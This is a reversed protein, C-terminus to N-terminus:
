AGPQVNVGVSVHLEVLPNPAATAAAWGRRNGHHDDTLRRRVRALRGRPAIDVQGLLLVRQDLRDGTGALRVDHHQHVPPRERDRLEAFAGASSSAHYGPVVPPVATASARNPVTSGLPFSGIDNGRSTPCIGIEYLSSGVPRGNSGFLLYVDFYRSTSLVGCYGNPYPSDYVVNESEFRDAGGLTDRFPVICTVASTVFVPDTAPVSTASNYTWSLSVEIRCGTRLSSPNWRTM